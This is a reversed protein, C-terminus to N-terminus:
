AVLLIDFLGEPLRDLAGSTMAARRLNRYWGERIDSNSVGVTEAILKELRDIDGPKTAQARRSSAPFDTEPLMKDVPVRSLMDRSMCANISFYCGLSIARSWDGDDGTFWHLITGEHPSEELLDLVRKQCGTSHISLLVPERRVNNLITRLTSLQRDFCGSHGDLGIEGIVAFHDILARFRKEDFEELAAPVGPHVGCAWVIRADDRHSVEEAELLSRTMAFIFAEGLARIQGTTVDPAVHAHCDLAPFTLTNM